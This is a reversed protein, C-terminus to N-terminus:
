GIRDLLGAAEACADASLEPLALRRYLDAFATMREDHATAHRADDPLGFAQRLARTFQASAPGAAALRLLRALTACDPRGPGEDDGGCLAHALRREDPTAHPHATGVGIAAHGDAPEEGAIAAVVDLRIERGVQGSNTGSDNM